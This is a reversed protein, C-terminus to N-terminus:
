TGGKNIDARWDKETDHLFYPKGHRTFACHLALPVTARCRRCIGVLDHVSTDRRRDNLELEEVSQM